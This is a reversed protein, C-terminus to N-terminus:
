SEIGSEMDDIANRFFESLFFNSLYKLSLPINRLLKAKEHFNFYSNSNPNICQLKHNFSNTIGIDGNFSTAEVKSYFM